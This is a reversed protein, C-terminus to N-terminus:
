FQAVGHSDLSSVLDNLSALLEEHNNKDNYTLCKINRNNQLSKIMDDSLKSSTVLYHPRSNPFNFRQNELLLSLDPDSVGCGIILFTHSLLCADLVDYFASYTVRAKAYDHNTFILERPSDISGHIKIIHIRDERLFNHVDRDFYKKVTVQGGTITTAYNEFIQDFNPSLYIRQDLEFITKHIEAAEYAPDVFWERLFPEWEEDMRSKIWECAHLLDGEKIARRIHSTGKQEIRKLGDQLLEKWLPPSKKKDKSLSNKSVGSGIFVAVRKSILDKKLQEPWKIM